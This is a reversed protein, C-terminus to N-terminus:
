SGPSKGIYKKCPNGHESQAAAKGKGSAQPAPLWMAQPTGRNGPTIGQGGKQPHTQARSQPIVSLATLGRIGVVESSLYDLM